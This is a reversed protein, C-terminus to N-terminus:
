KLLKQLDDKIATAWIEYGKESLHLYDPMVQRDLSSDKELFKEGIDKYFVMKGDDLRAILANTAKVKDRIKDTARASRPFIGLVLIKMEPKQKRLEEVIAKVGGAIQEASHGRMNNTGIM